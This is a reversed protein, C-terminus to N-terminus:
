LEAAIEEIVFSELVDGVKLDNYNEVGIGCEFGHMVEKADDKFRKLSGLQATYVVIGDRIVRLRSPRTIKGDTVLTGAIVGIKPVTFLNRVEAHGIIKDQQIPALTGAMSIKIADILEYIINFFMMKVNKAEARQAAIKDPRVNFGLVIAHSADALVIDTETIGGVSALIIKNKVKATDLKLLSGKIAEVSGHTDAKIIINLENIKETTKENAFLAQLDNLNNSKQSALQAQRHKETKYEVAERAISDSAVAYFADGADPVDNLGILEVPSGPLAQKLATGKDDHMARVRGMTKGIVISDQQKLCGKTIIVTAVAGRAKDRKAEIVVGEAFGSAPAKIDLMEAQLLIAEILKDLGEGTKASVKVFMCDGGWEESMVSQEALESNLRDFNPNPKDVKNIAVIIPVGAAKSHAIAEKTQPMVGDDAAVVLVVIDTVKAGRARMETFAEHGPTDLFTLKRDQYEIQYAGIHQTIGGAEGSVVSTKRLADLLSTKGHDVHGMITIIPPRAEAPIEVQNKKAQDKAIIDELSVTVNQTEFGFETAVLTATDFDLIKNATAMMGLKMLTRIILTVKVSLEAALDNASIHEDIRVIRKSAKTPNASFNENRSEKRKFGPKRRKNSVMTRVNIGAGIVAGETEVSPEEALEDRAYFKPGKRAAAKNRLDEEVRRKSDREKAARGKDARGAGVVSGPATADPMSFPRQQQTNSTYGTGTSAGAARLGGNPNHPRYGTGTGTTGTGPGRYGGNPNHPRYGTGAPRSDSSYPRRPGSYGEGQRAPRSMNVQYVNKEQEPGRRVITASHSSTASPKEVTKEKDASQTIVTATVANETATAVNTTSAEAKLSTAQKAVVAEESNKAPVPESNKVDVPKETTTSVSASSDTKEQVSKAAISPKDEIKEKVLVKLKEVTVENTVETKEVAVKPTVKSAKAVTKTEAAVEQKTEEPKEAIVEKPAEAVAQLVKNEELASETAASSEDVEPVDTSKRRIFIKSAPKKVAGTKNKKFAVKLKAVDTADVMSLHNKVSVGMQNLQALVTKTESGIEKAIDSVRVRSM